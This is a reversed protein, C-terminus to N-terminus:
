KLTYNKTNYPSYFISVKYYIYHIHSIFGVNLIIKNTNAIVSILKYIDMLLRIILGINNVYKTNV